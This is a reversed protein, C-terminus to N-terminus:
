LWLQLPSAFALNGRFSPRIAFNARSMREKEIRISPPSAEAAAPSGTGANVTRATAVDITKPARTVQSLMM